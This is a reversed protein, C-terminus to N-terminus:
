QSTLPVLVQGHGCMLAFISPVTSTSPSSSPQGNDDLMQNQLAEDRAQHRAMRRQMIHNLRQRKSNNVIQDM